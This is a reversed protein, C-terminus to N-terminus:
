RQLLISIWNDREVTNVRILNHSTCAMLVDQEDEKLLGSLLIKGAIELGFVLGGLNDVIVNKNINALIINFKHVAPFIDTKVIDIKVCGNKVLNEKANDISWDDEDIAVISSAGLKEALISLVGTGTGFDAVTKGTFDIKSMQQMMMYTTAHHGTGFSMKPTIIIEHQVNAIPEHFHARVSCFSDVVVPHFNHEWLHNWNQEKIVSTSYNLGYSALIEKATAENFKIQATSCLLENEREEFGDFGIESLRAIVMEKIDESTIDVELQIYDM